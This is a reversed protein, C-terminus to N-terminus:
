NQKNLYDINLVDNASVNLMFAGNDDALTGKNTGNIKISASQIPLNNENLIKGQILAQSIVSNGILATVILSYIKITNM